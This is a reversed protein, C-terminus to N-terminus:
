EPEGHEDVYDSYLDEYQADITNEAWTRIAQNTARKDGYHNGIVKRANQPFTLRLVVVIEKEDM